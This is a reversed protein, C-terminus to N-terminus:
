VLELAMLILCVASAIWVITRLHTIGSLYIFLYAIRLGLWIAALEVTQANMMVSLLALTFFVPLSELLNAAARKAREASIPMNDIAKDRPGFLYSPNVAGSMLAITSPLTVQILLWLSTFLIIELM